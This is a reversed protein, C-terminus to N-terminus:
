SYSHPKREALWHELSRKSERSPQGTRLAIVPILEDVREWCIIDRGHSDEFVRWDNREDHSAESLRPYWTLPVSVIRGDQLHVSLSDETIEVQEVRPQVEITAISM